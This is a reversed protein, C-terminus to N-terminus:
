YCSQVNPLMGQRYIGGGLSVCSGEVTSKIGAISVVILRTDTAGSSDAQTDLEMMLLASWYVFLFCAQDDLDRESFLLKRLGM